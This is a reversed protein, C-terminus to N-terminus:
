PAIPGRFNFIPTTLTVFGGGDKSRAPFSVGGFWVLDMDTPWGKASFSGDSGRTVSLKTWAQQSREGNVDTTYYVFEEAGKPAPDISFTRAAADGTVKPFIPAEGNLARNFFVVEMDTWTPGSWSTTGGPVDLWHSKNPGFCLFTPSHIDKLTSHAAGPSFFQDNTAAQLFVPAKIKSLYTAPDFSSVWAEVESSDPIYHTMEGGLGPNSKLFHATGYLSAVAAVRDGLIGALNLAMVGGWSVGSIGIRKSDVDPQTRLLEFSALGTQISDYLLSARPNPSVTFMATPVTGIFRADSRAGDRNVYGAYEPSIVVYGLKAWGLVKERMVSLGAGHCLLMGPRKKGSNGSPRAMLAFVKAPGEGGENTGEISEILIESLEVGEVRETKLVHFKPATAWPAFLDSANASSLVAVLALLVAVVPRLMFIM